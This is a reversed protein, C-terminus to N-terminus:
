INRKCISEGLKHKDELETTKMWLTSTKWKLLELKLIKKMATAIVDLLTNVMGLTM